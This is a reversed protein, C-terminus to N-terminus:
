TAQWARVRERGFDRMLGFVPHIVGSGNLAIQLRRRLGMRSGSKHPPIWDYGGPVTPDGTLRQHLRNIVKRRWQKKNLGRKLEELLFAKSEPIDNFSM